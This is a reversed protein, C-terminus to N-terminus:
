LSDSEPLMIRLWCEDGTVPMVAQGGSLKLDFRKTENGCRVEVLAPLGKSSGEPTVSHAWVKLQRASSAPLSFLVSRLKNFAPIAASAARHTKEGDSYLLQVDAMVPQGGSTITSVSRGGEREDERLEVVTRRGFVGRQAMVVSSGMILLGFVLASGRAWLNQYIFLGHLFLNALFLLYISTTFLPHDLFGYVVGPVYDGKRRSSFLLLVPFIGATLSNVIVGGFGLIGAFSASGTLFLWEAILFVLVIPSASLFFRGSESLMLARAWLAVASPATRRSVHSGGAPAEVRADLARWIEESMQRGRGAALHIRYRPHGEKELLHVFGQRALEDLMMRAKDEDQGIHAMVEALTAEGRRTLWNVVQRLPDPLELADAMHLGATDWDGVYALSMPSTVMLRVNEPSAALIELLLSIGHPRLEPLQESLAAADWRKDVKVEVRRVNGNWQVDFRFQPQGESLGLYTLGLRPSNGPTGRKGILFSARRRPLMIISRLRTPIREQVLNFLVTSTRLCSMGLLLIVLLSGLMHINPGVREALPALATGAESALKGPTVAGSVAMVWTAFLITLFVTGAVSGRILSRASPDRPLVVKACQIVYVHGIYLMVVVGFVLRLLSPDFPKGRLFPVSMYLLNASQAHSFALLVIPVLLLLNMAILLLMTTVTVNISKRSLYYLEVLLLLAVWAEAPVGTVTALTLGIGISGALMVLFTRIAATVSFLLSAEAGLYDTVLRGIFAKGYRFDGNRACAEAMCAMTLVNILGIVVVLVVGPLPGVNAVATPLALFAQSLSFAVTLWFTLWFPSLSDVWKSLETRAWSLWGLLSIQRAFITEAQERYLRHYAQRVAEADLGLALRIGPVSQYTFQYKQGLLHAIAARVQPNDPVLSAWQKAYREIDQIAPPIPPERGLSFAELFALDREKEADESLFFDLARRAQDALHATRSEILFLSTAARKAPLGGLVEDRTFLEDPSM